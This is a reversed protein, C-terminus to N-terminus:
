KVIPLTFSFTSGKGPESVCWIKGHHREIISKAISLGLGCGSSVSPTRSTSVMYARDFIRECDEQAIGIGTDSVSITVFQNTHSVSLTISSDVDSYKLANTFLNDLVRFLLPCDISVQYPYNTPVSLILTRQEYKLDAECNFFFEELFLGISLTELHLEKSHSDLSSLLFMDNVMQELYFIRSMLLTLISSTENTCLNPLSLLYEVSNHIATIPSRLDHSLNTYLDLLEQQSLQLKHNAEDLEKNKQSLNQNAEYLALSLEEVTLEPKIFPQKNTTSISMTM